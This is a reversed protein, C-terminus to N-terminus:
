KVRPPKRETNKNSDTPPLMDNGSKNLNPNERNYEEANQEAQRQQEQMIRQQEATKAADIRVQREAEKIQAILADDGEDYVFIDQWKKPREEERWLFGGLKAEEEPFQSPPYTKGDPKVKFSIKNINGNKLQFHIDSCTIKTIGTLTKNEDRNYNVLQGNGDVFVNDLTDKIFKGYLFKGKVQNFGGSSDKSIVFAKYYVKLSDMKNTKKDTLFYISDGTIQNKDNWLVPRRYMKTIGLAEDTFLSDCKGQLDKGFFKVHHFARVKRFESKGTVMLTDGHVYMSDKEVLTIAYPKGVVLVSDRAEFYEAYQGKVVSNNITDTMVIHGTASAFKRNEDYYMSDGEIIRDKYTIKANKSFHSIKAKSDHFGNECYLTNVSDKITSPGYLYSYGSDTYYELHDSIVENDPNTIVVQSLAKFRKESLFYKGIKSNLTNKFDKITAHDDYYLIQNARDFQLSDTTLTMEPDKLIVKGWSQAIKTNGNYDVYKSSQTITDGQNILVEGFAKIINAEQYILAQKCQLTAGEHEVLVNGLAVVADPYKDEDVMTNDAHIINIKKTQATINLSLVFVISILLYKV